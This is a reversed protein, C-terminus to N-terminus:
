LSDITYNILDYTIKIKFRKATDRISSIITPKNWLIHYAWFGKTHIGGKGWSERQKHRAIYLAKRAKNKHITYDSYGKAGFHISRGNPTIVQLKKDARKSQTIHYM